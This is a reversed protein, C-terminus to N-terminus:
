RVVREVVLRGALVAIVILGQVAPQLNSSLNMLTLLVTLLGLTLAGFLTGWAVARGGTFM